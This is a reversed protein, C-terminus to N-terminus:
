AAGLASADPRLSRSALLAPAVLAHFREFTAEDWLELRAFYDDLESVEAEHEAELAGLQAREAESWLTSLALLEEICASAWHRLAAQAPESLRYSSLAVDRGQRLAEALAEPQVGALYAQLDDGDEVACRQEVLKIAAAYIWQAVGVVMRQGGVAGSM